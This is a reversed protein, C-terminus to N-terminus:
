NEKQVILQKGSITWSLKDGEHIGAMVALPKPLTIVLSHAVRRAKLPEHKLQRVLEVDRPNLSEEGCECKFGRLKFGAFEVDAERMKKGCMCQM